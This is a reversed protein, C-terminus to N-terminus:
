EIKIKGKGFRSHHGMVADKCLNCVFGAEMGSKPDDNFHIEIFEPFNFRTRIKELDLLCDYYVWERCNDSWAQGRYTEKVGKSKLEIDLNILHECM